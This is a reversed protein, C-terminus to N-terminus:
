IINRNWAQSPQADIPLQETRPLVALSMLSENQAIQPNLAQGAPHALEASTLSPVPVLMDFVYFRKTEGVKRFKNWTSGTGEFARVVGRMVSYYLLQRYVVRQLPVAVLLRWAGPEKWVGWLAYSMDFATFLLFPLVLTHMEGFVLGFILAADTFPYALPLLINYILVNPLVVLSIVSGPKEAIVRKHKWFCQMTGYVWRFRQKLFNQVTHPTETYAIAEPEYVVRMGSRLVTLTLDQDEVLTDTSFGGLGLITARRWAGAPGPVIGVAGIQSFARKDINQGISYELTQFIDLARSSGTTRVKGAVAGVKPDAFHKAFHLLADKELVADADLVVIIEHKAEQIGSNLATAKGGNVLRLMRVDDAPYADIVAQVEGSTDDTSGDDLVIIERKPYSSRIISEVTAAINEEENYAPILVSIGPLETAGLELSMSNPNKRRVNGWMVLSLLGLSRVLVLVLSFVTLSMLVKVVVPFVHIYAARLSATVAGAALTWAAPSVSAMEISEQSAGSLAVGAIAARTAPGVIGSTNPDPNQRDIIGSRMQFNTVAETTQADMVGSLAYADLYKEKYLFWQLKSVEGNSTQDTAGPKLTATLAVVSPPTVLESLPVIAYGRMHLYAVIAPLARATSMRESLAIIHGNPTDAIAGALGAIIQDTTTALWDRPNIDAGIPLYGLALTWLMDQSPSIYPNVTPDTGIGLQYPPSYLIPQKGTIQGLLYSTSHLEFALRRYSDHANLSATFSHSEVDFGADSTKKVLDPRTLATEGVYFFTAPVNYEKLARIFQETTDADPGSQITLAVKKDNAASYYYHYRETASSYLIPKHQSTAFSLGFLFLLVGGLLIFLFLATGGRFYLKRRKSSDFFIPM